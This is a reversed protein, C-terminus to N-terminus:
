FGAKKYYEQAKQPDKEVGIGEEYMMGLTTLPRATFRGEYSDGDPVGRVVRTVSKRLEAALEQLHFSRFVLLSACDTQHTPLLGIMGGACALYIISSALIM